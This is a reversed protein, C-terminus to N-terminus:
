LTEFVEQEYITTHYDAGGDVIHAQFKYVGRVSFDTALSTFQIKGDTGDTTFSSTKTVKTGAARRMKIEHTTATSVDIVTDDQNKITLIINTGTDGIFVKDDSTTSM